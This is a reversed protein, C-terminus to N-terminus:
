AQDYRETIHQHHTGEAVPLGTAVQDVSDVVDEMLRHSVVEEEAHSAVEVAEAM